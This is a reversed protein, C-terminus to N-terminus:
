NYLSKNVKNVTTCSIKLKKAIWRQPQDLELFKIIKIRTILTQKEHETLITDLYFKVLDLNARAKKM